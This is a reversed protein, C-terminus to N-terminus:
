IAPRSDKVSSVLGVCWYLQRIIRRNSIRWDPLRARSICVSLSPCAESMLRRAYDAFVYYGLHASRFSGFVIENVVGVLGDTGREYILFGEHSLRSIREIYGRLAERSSPPYVWPRHFNCDRNVKELFEEEDSLSPTRIGIRM